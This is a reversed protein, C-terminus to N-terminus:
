AEATIRPLSATDRRHRVHGTEHTLAINQQEASVDDAIRISQHKPDYAGVARSPLEARSVSSVYSAAYDAIEKVESPTLRVDGEGVRRRGAVFRANLLRGDMDTKLQNGHDLELARRDDDAFARPPMEPPLYVL